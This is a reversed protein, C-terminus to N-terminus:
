HSTRQDLNLPPTPYPVPPAESSNWEVEIGHARCYAAEYERQLFIQVRLLKFICGSTMAELPSQGCLFPHVGKGRLWRDSHLEGFFMEIYQFIYALTTIRLVHEGKIKQVWEGSHIEAEPLNLLGAAEPESLHWYRVRDVFGEAMVQRIEDVGDTEMQQEINRVYEKLVIRERRTIPEAISAGSPGPLQWVYEPIEVGDPLPTTM